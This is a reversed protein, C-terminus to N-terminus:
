FEGFAAFAECTASVPLNIVSSGLFVPSSDLEIYLDDSGDATEGCSEEFCGGLPLLAGKPLKLFAIEPSFNGWFFDDRPAIAATAAMAITPEADTAAEIIIFLPEM